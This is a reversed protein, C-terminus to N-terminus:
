GVPPWCYRYPPLSETGILEIRDIAEAVRVAERLIGSPIDSLDDVTVRPRLRMGRELHAQLVERQYASWRGRGEAYGPRDRYAV